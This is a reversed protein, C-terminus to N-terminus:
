NKLTFRVPVVVSKDVKPYGAVKGVAHLVAKDLVDHGSSLVVAADKAIGSGTIRFSVKVLGEIGNRRAAPPYVVAGNVMEHIKKVVAALDAARGQAKGRGGGPPEGSPPPAPAAVSVGAEKAAAEEEEREEERAGEFPAPNEPVAEEVPTPSQKRTGTKKEVAPLSGHEKVAAPEVPPEEEVLPTVEAAVVSFVEEDRDGSLFPGLVVWGAGLVLGHVLLSAAATWIFRIRDEGVQM